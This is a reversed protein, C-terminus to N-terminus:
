STARESPWYYPAPGIPTQIDKWEHFLSLCKRTTWSVAMREIQGVMLQRKRAVKGSSGTRSFIDHVRNSFRYQSDDKRFRPQDAGRATALRLLESTKDCIM